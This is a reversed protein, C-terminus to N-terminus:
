PAAVIKGTGEFWRPECALLLKELNGIESNAQELESRATGRAARFSSRITPWLGRLGRM